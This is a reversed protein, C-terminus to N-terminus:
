RKGETGGYFTFFSFFFRLLHFRKVAMFAQINFMSNQLCLKFAYTSLLLFTLPTKLMLHNKRCCTGLATELDLLFFLNTSSTTYNKRSSLNSM